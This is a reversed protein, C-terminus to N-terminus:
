VLRLDEDSELLIKGCYVQLIKSCSVLNSSAGETKTKFILNASM